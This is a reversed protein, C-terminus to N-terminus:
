QKYQVCVGTTGGRANGEYVHVIDTLTVLSSQNYCIIEDIANVEVCKMYYTSRLIVAYM